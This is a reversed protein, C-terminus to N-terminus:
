SLHGCRLCEFRGDRWRAEISGCYPCVYGGGAVAREHAMPLAPEGPPRQPPGHQQYQNWPVHTPQPAYVRATPWTGQVATPVTKPELVKRGSLFEIIRIVYYAFFALGFAAWVMIVIVTLGVVAVSDSIEIPMSLYDTGFHMTISAAIGYKLFLYGFALGGVTAPLIKWIGWGSTFHAVGFIVSSVILLAVEPVGLSFGGGIVYSQLAPRRKRRVYDVLLLPLGVMLVRVIIEEWVSANALLFLAEATTGTSPLEDPSPNALLGIVLSFFLTAFLLSGTAFIVSHERSEGTMMLEKSFPGIGRVFVVTCSAIIAVILLYYYALLAHGSLTVIPVIVPLVLFLDFGTWSDMIEPSVITTGYILVMVSVVLMALFSLMAYASVTKLVQRFPTRKRASGYYFEHAYPLRRLGAPPINSRRLSERVAGCRPCYTGQHPIECGCFVCHERPPQSPAPEAESSM